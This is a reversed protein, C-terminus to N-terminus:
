NNKDRLREKLKPKKDGQFEFSDVFINADSSYNFNCQSSSNRYQKSINKAKKEVKFQLSTGLHMDSNFEFVEDDDVATPIGIFAPLPPLPESYNDRSDEKELLSLKKLSALGKAEAIEDKGPAMEEYEKITELEEINGLKESKETTGIVKKELDVYTMRNYDMIEEVDVTWLPIDVFVEKLEQLRQLTKPGGKATSRKTLAVPTGKTYANKIVSTQGPIPTSKLPDNKKM